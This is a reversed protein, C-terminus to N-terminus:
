NLDAHTYCGVLLLFSFFIFYFIPLSSTSSLFSRNQIWISNWVFRFSIKYFPYFFFINEFQILLPQRCRYEIMKYIYMYLVFSLRRLTSICCYEQFINGDWFKVSFPIRKKDTAKREMKKKQNRNEWIVKPLISRCCSLSHRMRIQLKISEMEM